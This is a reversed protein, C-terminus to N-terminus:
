DHRSHVLQIFSNGKEMWGFVGFEQMGLVGDKFEECTKKEGKLDRQWELQM